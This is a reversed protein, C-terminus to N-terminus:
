NRELLLVMGFFLPSTRLMACMILCTIDDAASDLNAPKYMIVRLATYMLIMSASIPCVSGGVGSCVLLKIASATVFPFTFGLRVFAMSM